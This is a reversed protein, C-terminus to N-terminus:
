LLTSVPSFYDEFSEQTDSQWVEWAKNFDVVKRRTGLIKELAVAVKDYLEQASSDDVPFLHQPYIFLPSQQSSLNM